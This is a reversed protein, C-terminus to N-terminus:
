EIGDSTGADMSRAVEASQAAVRRSLGAMREQMLREDFEKMARRAYESKSLGLRKAAAEINAALTQPIRFSFPILNDVDRPRAASGRAPDGGAHRGVLGRDLHDHRQLARRIRMTKRPTFASDASM